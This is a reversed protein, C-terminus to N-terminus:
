RRKARFTYTATTLEAVQKGTKDLEVVKAPWQQLPVLTNGNPLRFPAMPQMATAEWVVKGDPDFEQVKNMWQIAALVHGNPLVENTNSINGGPVQFSKLEKGTADLRIVRAQNSVLVIEGGKLKRATMVDHNPRQISLVEKGARDVELLLNQCAIFTNGNPLRQANYPYNNNLQKQWLIDGKLNRETIRRAGGEAILVRDNSIMQADQPQALGSITWRPKGDRGLESVTQNQNSVLLTYGLYRQAQAPSTRAVLAVRDSNAQWWAAWADRRKKAAEGDGEPLGAPPKGDALRNLYEEVPAAQAYPLEGVLAILVPVAEKDRAGALGLAAKLRVTADADKLLKRVEPQLEGLPGECLAEAAAGRRAAAPDQLARALAPDPKGDKYAVADLAAQLEAAITEDEAFPLFNLIADAAGAPKRLALVRPVAAPLPASTDKEISKLCAAARQRVEVDPSNLAQRLLPVMAPGLAKLEAEAKQRVDFDDDGLAKVLAAGKDRDGDKLTRKRVEELAWPGETGLWWAAWADRCKQRAVDDAGLPVKPSQEGALGILYEEAQGALAPPLDSLLTVLTSVAKPDHAGALALSARLRVVPAPDQLLKRLTARPEAVGNHCLADIASARRLSHPDALAKLLAPEPEGDRYALVALATKVEETVTEDEAGPLFDLLADVAGAPKRQALLRVAASTLTASNDGLAHLCRRALGAAEAADPDKVTQRLLPISPPGIAVLEAAARTRAAADPGHLAAILEALREPPADGRTRTRFFDLLGAGDTALGVEKLTMEDAVAPDIEEAARTTLCLALALCATWLPALLRRSM